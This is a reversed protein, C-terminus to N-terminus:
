TLFFADEKQLLLRQANRYCIDKVYDEECTECIYQVGSALNVTRHADSGIFTVLKEQLLKRAFDRIDEEREEVLSYANIQVPVHLKRITEFVAPDNRLWIYREMHAIIPECDCETRISSVFSGIEAIDTGPAFETLVYKSPGMHLLKGQKLNKLIYDFYVRECLIECGPHLTVHIGSEDMCEQLLAINKRYAPIYASDHSTCMIDRVGQAYASTIMELAMPLTEAGDDVGFVYHGHIDVIRNM